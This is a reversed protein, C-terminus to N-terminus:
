HARQTGKQCTGIISNQFYISTMFIECKNQFYFYGEFHNTYFVADKVIQKCILCQIATKKKMEEKEEVERRRGGEKKPLILYLITITNWM